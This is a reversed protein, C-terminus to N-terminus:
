CFSMVQLALLSTLTCKVEETSRQAQPRLYLPNARPDNDRGKQKEESNQGYLPFSSCHLTHQASYSKQSGPRSPTRSEGSNRTPDVGPVSDLLSVRTYYCNIHM